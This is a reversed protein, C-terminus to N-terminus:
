RKWDAKGTASHSVSTSHWLLEFTDILEHQMNGITIFLLSHWLHDVLHSMRHRSHYTWPGGIKQLSLAWKFMTRLGICIIILTSCYKHQDYSMPVICALVRNYDPALFEVIFVNAASLSMYYTATKRGFGHMSCVQRFSKTLLFSSIWPQM